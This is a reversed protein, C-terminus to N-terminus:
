SDGDLFDYLKDNEPSFELALTQWTPDETNYVFDDAVCLSRYGQRMESLSGNQAVAEIGYALRRVAKATKMLISTKM